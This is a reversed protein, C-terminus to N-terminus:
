KVVVLISTKTDGDLWGFAFCNKYVTKYESDSMRKELMKTVAKAHILRGSKISKKLIGKLDSRSLSKNLLEAIQLAQKLRGWKIALKLAATLASNRKKGSLSDAKKLYREITHLEIVKQSITEIEKLTLHRGPLYNGNTEDTVEMKELVKKSILNIKSEDIELLKLHKKLIGRLKKKSLTKIPENKVLGLAEITKADPGGGVVRLTVHEPDNLSISFILKIEVEELAEKLFSSSIKKDTEM